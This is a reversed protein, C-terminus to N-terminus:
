LCHQHANEARARVFAEMRQLLAKADEGPEAGEAPGGLHRWEELLARVESKAAESLGNNVLLSRCILAMNVLAHSCDGNSEGNGKGNAGM